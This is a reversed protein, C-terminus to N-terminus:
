FLPETISSQLCAPGDRGGEREEQCLGPVVCCAPPLLCLLGSYATPLPPVLTGWTHPPSLSRPVQCGTSCLQTWSGSARLEWDNPVCVGFLGLPKLDVCLGFISPLSICIAYGRVPVSVPTGTKREGEERIKQKDSISLLTRWSTASSWSHTM